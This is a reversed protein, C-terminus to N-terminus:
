EENEEEEVSDLYEESMDKWMDEDKIHSLEQKLQVNAFDLKKNKLEDDKTELWKILQKQLESLVDINHQGSFYYGSYGGHANNNGRKICTIVENLLYEPALKEQKAYIVKPMLTDNLTQKHYQYMYGVFGEIAMRTCILNIYFDKQYFYKEARKANHYFMKINRDNRHSLSSLSERPSNLVNSTENSLLNIFPVRLHDFLAKMCYNVVFVSHKVGLITEPEKSFQNRRARDYVAQFEVAFDPSQFRLFRTIKDMVKMGYTDVKNISLMYQSFAITFEHVEKLIIPFQNNFYNGVISNAQKILLAVQPTANEINHYKNEM